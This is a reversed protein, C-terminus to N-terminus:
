EKAPEAGEPAAPEDKRKGFREPLVESVVIAGFILAFGAILRPTMQEGYLLVSFLVGFVSELSLLLSGQAPPVHALAVNQFVLAVCSAFVVLYFLNFLFEPTLAAVNPPTETLAGIAIGCIGGVWFQYVTLALVDRGQAFKSVCAIHVAFFVACLLTMFDGFEVTLAGSSLSVMGVGAVCMVAAVLNFATPRRKAILWFVFPVIVCYTATLFANKGPTTHALGITQVWFALFNLVGLIGGAVLYERTLAVRMHRFFVATLVVATLAFRVGILWAPELVSVADKMVVFSFGWIVTAVVIMLKYVIAPINRKANM